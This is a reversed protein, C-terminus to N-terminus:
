HSMWKMLIEISILELGNDFGLSEMMAAGLGPNERLRQM